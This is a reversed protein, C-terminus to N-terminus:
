FLHQCSPAHPTNEGHASRRPPCVLILSGSGVSSLEVRELLYDPTLMKGGRPIAVLIDRSMLFARSSRYPSHFTDKRVPSTCLYIWHHDHCPSLPSGGESHLSSTEKVVSSRGRGSWGSSFNNTTPRGVCGVGIGSSLSVRWLLLYNGGERSSPRVMRTATRHGLPLTTM